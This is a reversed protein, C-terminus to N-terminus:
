LGLVLLRVSNCLGTAPPSGATALRGQTKVTFGTTKETATPEYFGVLTYEGTEVRHIDTSLRKGDVIYGGGDIRNIATSGVLIQGQGISCNAEDYDSIGRLQFHGFVLIFSTISNAPVNVSQLDTFSTNTTNAPTNNIAIKTFTAHTHSVSAFASADNGDLRDANLNTCVTGNGIPINGNSNGASYGSLKESNDVINNGDTDYTSKKMDGDGITPKNTLNNWHVQGGAGSTNLETESYYRDDHTHTASSFETSEKGDLLDANIASAASAFRQRPTMEADTGVKIGLYYDKDFNVNLTTTSGLLVAFLGRSDIPVNTHTETWVATGGTAAEYISFTVDRTGTIPTGATDTLRGQYHLLRPVVAYAVGSVVFVMSLIFLSVKKM